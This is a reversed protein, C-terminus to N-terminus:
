LHSNDFYLTSFAAILAIAFSTWVLTQPTFVSGASLIEPTKYPFQSEMVILVILPPTNSVSSLDTVFTSVGVRLDYRRIPYFDFSRVIVIV